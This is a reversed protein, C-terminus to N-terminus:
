RVVEVQLPKLAHTEDIHIFADYRKSIRSPVYNGLQEYEPHYIVGIARHGITDEFLHKNKNTFILAKNYPGAQHMFDEWSNKEAPPVNMVELGEGWKKSAIVSGRHTGFGIAFVQDEGYRERVIQGVNVLGERKMDTARADGIHTNHEWIIVKAENDYYNVLEQVTDAMHYDRINWSDTDDQVMARYYQEAHAAVLANIQLNLTAEHPQKQHHNTRIKHLLKVVEDICDDSLFSASVGYNEPRRNHPEFCSFANKATEIDPSGIKELYLIIEEMSEWLSYVDIGYYGVKENPATKNNNYNRLWNTLEAIEENAWMWTPWRNFQELAQYANKYPDDYNKIYRNVEFCAPWDGEVAIISFGKQEILRKTIEARYTYFESTGHSAEGLLVYKADGVSNIISQLDDHSHLRYSHDKIDQVIQNVM